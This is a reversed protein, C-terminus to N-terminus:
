PVAPVRDYVVRRLAACGMRIPVVLLLYEQRNNGHTGHMEISRDCETQEIEEKKQTTRLNSRLYRAILM